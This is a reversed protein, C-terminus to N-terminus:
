NTVFIRYLAYLFFSNEPEEPVPRKLWFSLLWAFLPAFVLYGLPVAVLVFLLEMLVIMEANGEDIDFLQKLDRRYSSWSRSPGSDEISLLTNSVWLSLILVFVYRYKPYGQWLLRNRHTTNHMVDLSSFPHPRIPSCLSEASPFSIHHSRMPDQIVECDGQGFHVTWGVYVEAQFSEKPGMDFVKRRKLERLIIPLRTERRWSLYADQNLFRGFILHSGNSLDSSSM